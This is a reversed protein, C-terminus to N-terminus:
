FNVVACMAAGDSSVSPIVGYYGGRRGYNRVVLRSAGPAVVADVLNYIYLAATLGIAINRGAEWHDRKTTYSKILASNHTRKIKMAYDHRQSETFIIAAAGAITGGLIFGGKLYSGKYMQGWGPVFMSRWLGRAGYRKTQVVNDFLPVRGLESIAFVSTLHYGDHNHEWYEAVKNLYLTGPDSTMQTNSDLEKEVKEELHGNHWLQKIINRSNTQTTMVVGNQFGSFRVANDLAANRAAELTPAVASIREYRFSSNTPQPLGSM